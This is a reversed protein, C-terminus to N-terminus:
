HQYLKLHTSMEQCLLCGCKVNYTCFLYKGCREISQLVAQDLGLLQDPSLVFETPQNAVGGGGELMADVVIDEETGGTGGTESIVGESSAELAEKAGRRQM